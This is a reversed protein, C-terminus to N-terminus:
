SGQREGRQPAASVKLPPIISLRPLEKMGKKLCKDLTNPKVAFLESPVSLFSEHAYNMFDATSSNIRTENRTRHGAANGAECCSTSSSSCKVLIPWCLWLPHTFNRAAWICFEANDDSSYGACRAASFTDAGGM